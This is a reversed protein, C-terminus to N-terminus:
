KNKQKGNQTDSSETKMIGTVNQEYYRQAKTRHLCNNCKRYYFTGDFRTYLNIELFGNKCEFCQWTNKLSALISTTNQESEEKSLHEQVIESVYAHRDLDMRAFNKRTRAYSRTLQRIETELERIKNRLERNEYKLEQEKSYEKHGRTTKGM